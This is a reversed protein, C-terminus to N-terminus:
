LHLDHAVKALDVSLKTEQNMLQNNGHLTKFNDPVKIVLDLIGMDFLMQLGIHRKFGDTLIKELETGVKIKKANAL